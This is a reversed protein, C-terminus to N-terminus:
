QTIDYQFSYSISPTGSVRKTNFEILVNSTSNSLIRLPSIDINIAASGHGLYTNSTNARPIPLPFTFSVTTSEAVNNINCSGFVTVINGVKTYTHIFYTISTAGSVSVSTPTYRGSTGAGADFQGKTIFEDSNVAPAGKTRGDKAVSFKLGTNTSGEFLNGTGVADKIASFCAGSGSADSVISPTSSTRSVYMQGSWVKDGAIGSQNGSTNVVQSLIPVHNSATAPSSTITGNAEFDGNNKFKWIKATSLVGDGNLMIAGYGNDAPKDRVFGFMTRNVYGDAQLSLGGILPYFKNPDYTINYMETNVNPVIYPNVANILISPPSSTKISGFSGSGNVQLEGGVEQVLSNVFGTGNWKTLYNTTLGTPTNFKANFTNWDTSSLAGNSSTSALGLSLVQTALSLGNATGLTVPNHTANIINGNLKQIAQLVSDTASIAGSSSVYGTLVAGIARANTFYLNTLEPVNATNLTQWTKDGRYYQATTGASITPEKGNLATQKGGILMHHAYPAYTIDFSFEITENPVLVYDQGDPFVFDVGYGSVANGITVPTNQANFLTIRKGNYPISNYTVTNLRTVSGKFVITAKEDVLTLMNIIGSGTLIVNARESKQVYAGNVEPPQPQGVATNDVLVVTVYLSGSPTAPAVPTTTSEAGAVRLFTNSTTLVVLDLRSKGASALPFNLVVDAPNTYEITNIRWVWGAAFTLDQDVLAYTKQVLIADPTELFTKVKEFNRNIKGGGTRAGDGTKDGATAGLNINEFELNM